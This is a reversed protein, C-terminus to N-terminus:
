VAQWAAFPARGIQRMMFDSPIGHVDYYDLQRELAQLMEAAVDSGEGVCWNWILEHTLHSLMERGQTSAYTTEGWLRQKGQNFRVAFEASETIHEGPAPGALPLAEFLPLAEGVDFRARASDVWQNFEVLTARQADKGRLLNDEHQILRLNPFHQDFALGPLLPVFLSDGDWSVTGSRVARDQQAHFDLRARGIVQGLGTGTKTLRM